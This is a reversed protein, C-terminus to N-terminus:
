NESSLFLEKEKTGGGGSKTALGMPSSSTKRSGKVNGSKMNKNNEMNRELM